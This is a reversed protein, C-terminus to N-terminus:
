ISEKLHMLCANSWKEREFVVISIESEMEKEVAKVIKTLAKNKLEDSSRLASFVVIKIFDEQGAFKSGNIQTVELDAVTLEMPMQDYM